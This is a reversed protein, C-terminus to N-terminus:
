RSHNNPLLKARITTIVIIEAKTIFYFKKRNSCM